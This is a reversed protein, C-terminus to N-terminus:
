LKQLIWTGGRYLLLVTLIVFYTKLFLYNTTIKLNKLIIEILIIVIGVILFDFSFNFITIKTDLFGLLILFFYITYKKKNELSKLIKTKDLFYFIYIIVLIQLIIM